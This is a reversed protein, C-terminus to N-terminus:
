CILSGWAGFVRLFCVLFFFIVDGDNMFIQELPVDMSSYFIAGFECFVYVYVSSGRFFVFVDFSEVFLYFFHQDLAHVYNLFPGIFSDGHVYNLVLQEPHFLHM